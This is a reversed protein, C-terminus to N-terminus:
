HYHDLSTGITWGKEGNPGWTHRQDAAEHKVVKTGPPAIPTKNYDFQGEISLNPNTRSGRLLNLTLNAQPMLGDWERLQFDSHVSAQMSEDTRAFKQYYLFFHHLRYM